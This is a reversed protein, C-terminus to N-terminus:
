AAPAAPPPGSSGSGPGIPEPPSSVGVSGPEDLQKVMMEMDFGEKRVCLDYYMVTITAAWLPATIIFGIGSVIDTLIVWLTFNDSSVGEFASGILAPILGGIITTFIGIVIVIGLTRWWYDKVLESSRGLAKFGRRDELLLAPLALIWIITLYIALIAPLFLFFLAAPIGTFIAVLLVVWFMSGLRRAAARISAGVEVPEGLYAQSAARLSAGVVLLFGILYLIALLVSGVVIRTTDLARITDGVFYSDNGVGPLDAFRYLDILILALILPIWVLAAIKALPVFRRTYISFAGDLVQGFSRPGTQGAQM